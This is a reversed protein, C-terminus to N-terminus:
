AAPQVAESALKTLWWQELRDAHDEKTKAERRLRKTNFSVDDSVMADRLVYTPEKRDPRAASPYRRQLGIVREEPFMDPQDSDPDDSEDERGFRKRCAARALQRIYLDAVRRLEGEGLQAVAEAAISAPNLHEDGERADILADVLDRLDMTDSTM